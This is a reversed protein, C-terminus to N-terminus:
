VSRIRAIESVVALVVMAMGMGGGVSVMPVDVIPIGASAVLADSWVDTSILDDTLDGTGPRRRGDDEGLASGPLRITESREM